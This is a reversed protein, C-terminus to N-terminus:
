SSTFIERVDNYESERKRQSVYLCVCLGVTHHEKEKRNFELKITPPAENMIWMCLYKKQQQKRQYSSLLSFLSLPLSFPFHFSRLHIKIHAANFYIEDAANAPALASLFVVLQCIESEISFKAKRGM